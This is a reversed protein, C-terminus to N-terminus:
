VTNIGSFQTIKQLLRALPSAHRLGICCFHNISRPSSNDRNFFSLPSEFRTFENLQGTGISLGDAVEYSWGRGNLWKRHLKASSTLPM